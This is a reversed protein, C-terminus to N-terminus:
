KKLSLYETFSGAGLKRRKALMSAWITNGEAETILGKELAEILIDGTTIHRLGLEKVYLAIDRLNNSAVVGNHVSALAISAAEGPGIIKHGQDPSTTLKHYLVFEDTGLDITALNADGSRLLQDIREKLQPTTPHSLEDYAAKPIIIRGPYLIALLNQERVWLFASICDSDFFLSDTM